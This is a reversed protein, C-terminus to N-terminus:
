QGILEKFRLVYQEKEDYIWGRGVRYNFEMITTTLKYLAEDPILHWPMDLAGTDGEIIDRMEERLRMRQEEM